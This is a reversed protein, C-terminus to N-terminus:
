IGGIYVRTENGISGAHSHVRAWGQRTGPMGPRGLRTRRHPLRPILGIAPGRSTRGLSKCPSRPVISGCSIGLSVPSGSHDSILARDNRPKETLAQLSALPSGPNTGGGRVENLVRIPSGPCSGWGVGLRENWARVSSIM